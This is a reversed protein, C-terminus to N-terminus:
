EQVGQRNRRTVMLVLGAILAFGGLLGWPLVNATGTAPLPPKPAAPPTPVNHETSCSDVCGGGPTGAPTVVNKIVVGAADAKVTVIYSVTATAGVELSPIEWSLTQDSLTLGAPLDGALTAHALVGSLDDIAIAGTLVGDGTNTASLTYTITEGPKVTAGSAPDSTKTLTWAPVLHETTCAGECEGGPTTPVVVNRLTAGRADDHVLVTYSVSVSDGVGITGANWTLTVGDLELGAPLEGVLDAHALVEALDDSAAADVPVPGTNAITLTYTIEQGPLVSSGTAPDSTKTLSWAPVPHETTCAEVCEGGPSTPVVVNRLTEGLADSQVLVTYSVSVSEGVAVTGANWTLTTGDLTLGAPLEGVLDAHALVDTLDDSATPQVAVPGTNTITLTYTVEDGPLVTSGSAPDSSKSLSWAPVPNETTCSEECEGGPSTPVVVNRLTVGRANDHVTVTYSVSVSEGVGIAGTTWTLNMGDRELGAPLEGVLDAHELVATLDDVATASDIAVPGTNTITLTYTVDQGPVVASGSAPNSSKTLSWAPVPHETTCQEVCEGGPSAPVVVNRLTVGRADDHVVVTYSVSVSEGVGVAAANWTLTTGDLVLGAPLDGVIDAHALMDTLDDEATAGALVVPGTNNITLTYTVEDGPLVTTGSVPDSSKALTWAPTLHTTTCSEVCEGGDGPEVSNVLTVGDFGDLVTVAYSVSASENPALTPIAWTLVDGSRTLGAPPDGLTAYTLVGALDDTAIAGDVIANETTNRATLTYTIVDGAVVASGSAPDATKSIEWAPTYHVTSCQECDTPPNEGTTTVSNRLEVGWQDDNVTVQYVLTLPEGVNVRGITWVLSDSTVSTTGRSATISAEDLTAHPLVATLNDTVVVDDVFGAAGPTVTVTYTIVDGPEVTSGSAPDSEKMVTYSGMERTLTNTATVLIPVDTTAPMEFVMTAGDATGTTGSISMATSWTYSPDNVAPLTTETVECESGVPISIDEDTPSWVGGATIAFTNTAGGAPFVDGNDAVCQWEFSYFPDADTLGSADGEFAKTVSFDGTLRAVTNTVTATAVDPNAKLTVPSSFSHGTWVYSTDGPVPASPANESMIACETGVYYDRPATFTGAGTITWEEPADAVGGYSCQYTGSYEIGPSPVLDGVGVGRNIVKTIAYTGYVREVTNTFTMTAAEDAVEIDVVQMEPHAGWAYSDDIFVETDFTDERARCEATLPIQPNEPDLVAADGTAPATWRGTAVEDGAYECVWSGSVTQSPNSFGSGLPADLQKTIALTGYVRQPTNTVTFAAPGNATVTTAQATVNPTAWTWSVDVLRDNSPTQETVDCVTGLPLETDGDLTAAGAGTVSWTGGFSEERATGEDYVCSYAGTYETGDLVAHDLGEAIQKTIEIGGTVRVINNDVVVARPSEGITLTETDDGDITISHDGWAYSSDYLGGTFASEHVKCTWGRPVDSILPVAAENPFVMTSGTMRNIADPNDIDSANLACVAGVPFGAFDTADFGDAGSLTKAVTVSGTHRAVENTVTMRNETTTQSVSTVGVLVPDLWYFSSDTASPAALADETVTCSSTLLVQTASGTTATLTAPTGASSGTGTWTGAAVTASGYACAWTGSYTRDTPVVGAYGGDDFLKDITVEGYVRTMSNTVTMVPTDSEAVTVGDDHSYDPAAWAFSADKLGGSIAGEQVSCVAGIPIGSWEAKGDAAITQTAGFQAANGTAPNTCTLTMPFLEATGGTFGDPLPTVEKEVTVSGTRASISNTASVAVTAGDAPTTFEIGNTVPTGDAGTTSFTVGDWRFPDVPAPLESGMRETVTCVSGAPIGDPGNGTAGSAVPITGTIEAGSPPACVYDFQFPTTAFQQGATGGTVSKAISFSGTTRSITNTVTANTGDVTVPLINSPLAIAWSYSNDGPVPNAPADETVSCVSGVLLAAYNGAINTLTAAGGDAAVTWTGNAHPEGAFVCSWTGTFPETLSVSANNVVNKTVSLAGYVRTIDNIVTVAAPTTTAPVTVAGDTLGVYTPAVAWTYSSGPLNDSGVPLDTEAVTCSTGIPLYPTQQASGLPTTFTFVGTYNSAQGQAPQDCAVTVDFTTGPTVQSAFNEIQKTVSIRNYGITTPNTVTVTAPQAITATVSGNTLGAYTPDQWVYGAALGPRDATEVVTCAVASPVQVVQSEGHALVVSGSVASDGQGCAYNITFDGGTYGDRDVVKAITLSAMDRTFYNVVAGASQGNTTIVAPQTFSTGDWRYSADVFDGSAPTLTESLICVSTAPIGTVTASGGAAIDRTGSATTSGGISCTYGIAFTRDGGTYGTSPVGDRAVVQKTIVLSGTNQSVPNTLNVRVASNATIQVAAGPTTTPAGWVFSGNSLDTSTGTPANLETVTCSAGAPLNAVTAVAGATGNTAAPNVVVQGTIPTASGIVCSYQATFPKATGQTYGGAPSTVTKTIELTGTQYVNRVTCTTSQGHTLTIESNGNVTVGDTCTWPGNQAYGATTNANNAVENLRYTGAIVSQSIVAASNGPGSVSQSSVVGQGLASLTWHAPQAVPAPQGTSTVQKVLTVTATPTYTNTYTCTINAAQVTNATTGRPITVSPGSVTVGTIAAGTGDVCAVSTFAWPASQAGETITISEGSNYARTFSQANALSFNTAWPSGALTSTSTFPFNQAPATVYPSNVVKNVTVNRVQEVSAYLCGYTMAGEVTRFQNLVDSVSDVTSNCSNNAGQPAVFGQIVLTYTLGGWQFTQPSLQNLFTTIDDSCDTGSCDNSTENMQWTYSLDVDGFRIDLDGRYYQNVAIVPNNSHTMRGLNFIQGTEVSTIASPAFGLASQGSLNLRNVSYGQRAGHATWAVTGASVFGTNGNAYYQPNGSSGSAGLNNDIQGSTTGAPASGFRYYDGSARNLTGGPAAATYGAHGDMQAQVSVPITAAVAQPANAGDLAVMGGFIVVGIAVVAAWRNM